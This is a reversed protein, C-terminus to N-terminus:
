FAGTAAFWARPWGTDRQLRAWDFGPGPDHKRGPAIHEHGAVAAIPYRTVLAHCLSRLCAYQAASFSGGELGELEIGVSYDNCNARGALSSAGAHWARADTSVFQLVHGNRRVFFHASVQVGRLSEFDPHASCDLRNLFLDAVADGHLVGPPLSISHLVILSVETGSPRPGHNPSPLHEAGDLWGATGPVFCLPAKM